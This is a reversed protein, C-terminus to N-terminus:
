RLPPRRSLARHVPVVAAASWAQPRCSAPYAVPSSVEDSGLGAFLEPIRGDFADAARVLQAALVRAHETLGARLMGEIVVGTDHPWVSGCHYSLPWHATEDSAMTRLGYGSAFREDVLLDAIRAEEDPSLLTTGLLQGINSTKADVPAGRGDLAIAPFREGDREVWFAARFRERMARAWAAWESGDEGLAELLEAGGAAAQCAQAQVECLAIPADAIRGDAFRVSDGSDKWGQNALGHGSEDVYKLFGSGDPSGHDRMWELAAVLAPRLERVAELPLGALWAEHLLVIWLPTADITGYYVPPLSIREGPLELQAHRLEHLMKGPQEASTPDVRTGQRAALTRLTSLALDTGLPLLLRATILSDRGFLTLFWPAGAAAFSGQGADLLLARVDALAQASWRDLSADGSAPLSAITPRDTAERVVARPDDLELSIELAGRGGPPVELERSAVITAGDIALEAGAARVVLTRVGDSAVADAGRMEVSTAAEVPAGAKVGMLEAFSVTLRLAVTGTVAQALGNVLELREDVGDGRVSRIREVRVRPDPTADDIMRAVSHFVARSPGRSTGVHELPLGDVTAELARAFRWDGRFVGHIASAGMSGDRASWVQTPARLVVLEDNLLPQLGAAAHM